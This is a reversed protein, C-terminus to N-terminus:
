CSGIEFGTSSLPSSGIPYMQASGSAKLMSTVCLM